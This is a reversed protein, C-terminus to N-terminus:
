RLDLGIEAIRVSPDYQRPLGRFLVQKREFDRRGNMQRCISASANSIMNGPNVPLYRKMSVIRRKSPFLPRDSAQTPLLRGRRLGLELEDAERYIHM